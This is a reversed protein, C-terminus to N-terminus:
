HLSVTLLESRPFTQQWTKGKPGTTRRRTGYKIHVMWPCFCFVQIMYRWNWHLKHWSENRSGKKLCGRNYIFLISSEAETWLITSRMERRNVFEFTCLHNWFHFFKFVVELTYTPHLYGAFLCYILLSGLWDHEQINWPTPPTFVFIQVVDERNEVASTIEKASSVLSVREMVGLRCVKNQSISDLRSETVFIEASWWIEYQEKDHRLEEWRAAFWVGVAGGPAGNPLLTRVM